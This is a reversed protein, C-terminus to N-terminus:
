IAGAWRDRQKSEQGKADEKRKNEGTRVAAEWDRMPQKGICWGRSAYFDCFVQGSIGNNRERCYNNVEDVTPVIFVKRPKRQKKGATSDAGVDEGGAPSIPPNEQIKNKCEQIHNLTPQTSTAQKNNQQNSAPQEDQYKDWNVFSIVTFKNTARTTVIEMKKLLNLATRIQQESLCLDNAAKSRGFVAEGAQLECVVGGFISKRSKHSAKLLLYGCLQWAPGNQLLGSDLAKRWLKVYGREM